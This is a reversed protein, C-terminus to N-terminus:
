PKRMTKQMGIDLRIRGHIGHCPEVSQSINVKMVYDSFRMCQFIFLLKRQGDILAPTIVKAATAGFLVFWSRFPKSGKTHMKHREM